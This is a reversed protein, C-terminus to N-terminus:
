KMLPSPLTVGGLIQMKEFAESMIDVLEAIRELGTLAIPGFLGGGSVGGQGPRRM